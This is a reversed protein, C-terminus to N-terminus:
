APVVFGGEPSAVKILAIQSGDPEVKIPNTTGVEKTPDLVVAIIGQGPIIETHGVECQFFDNSARSLMLTSQDVWNESTDTSSKDDQAGIFICDADATRARTSTVIPM